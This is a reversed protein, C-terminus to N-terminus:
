DTLRGENKVSKTGRFSPLLLKFGAAIGPRIRGLGLGLFFAVSTEAFKENEASKQFTPGTAV